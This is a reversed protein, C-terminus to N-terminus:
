NNLPKIIIEPITDVDFPAVTVTIQPELDGELVVDINIHPNHNTEGINNFHTSIDQKFAVPALNPDEFEINVELESKNLGQENKFAGLTSGSAELVTTKTVPNKTVETMPLLIIAPFDSNTKANSFLIHSAVDTIVATGGKVKNAGDINFTLHLDHNVTKPKLTVLLPKNPEVTVFRPDSGILTHVFDAGHISQHSRSAKAANTPVSGKHSEFATHGLIDLNKIGNNYTIISYVGHKLDAAFTKENELDIKLPENPTDSHYLWLVAGSPTPADVSIKDWNVAFQIQTIKPVEPVVDAKKCGHLIAVLMFVSFLTVIKSKIRKNKM